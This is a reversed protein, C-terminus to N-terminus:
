KDRTEIGEENTKQEVEEDDAGTFWERCRGSV